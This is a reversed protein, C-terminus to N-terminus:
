RRRSRRSSVSSRTGGRSTATRMASPAPRHCHTLARLRQRMVSWAASPAGVACVAGVCRLDGTVLYSRAKSGAVHTFTSNSNTTQGPDGMLALPYPFVPGVSNSTFTYTPSWGSAGGVRYFYVTAPALGTIHVTKIEGSTYSGIKYTAHTGSATSGFSASPGYEVTSATGATSTIWTVVVSDSSNGVALFIQVDSAMSSPWDLAHVGAVAADAKTDVGM